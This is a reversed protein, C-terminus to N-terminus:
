IRALCECPASHGIRKLCIPETQLPSSRGHWQQINWMFNSAVSAGIDRQPRCPFSWMTVLFYNMILFSYGSIKYLFAFHRRWAFNRHFDSPLTKPMQQPKFGLLMSSVLYLKSRFAIDDNKTQYFEEYQNRHVGTQVGLITCIYSYICAGNTGPEYGLVYILLPSHSIGRIM